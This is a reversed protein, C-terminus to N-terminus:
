QMALPLDFVFSAGGLRGEDLIRLRGGHGEVIEGAVTLGMGFGNPRHTFGPWFIKEHDKEPVGPGSDHVACEVRGKIHGPSTDIRLLRERKEPLRDLWYLANDLLNIIVAYVEGPDM